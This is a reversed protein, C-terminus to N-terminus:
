FLLNVMVRAKIKDNKVAVAKDEIDRTALSITMSSCGERWGEKVVM